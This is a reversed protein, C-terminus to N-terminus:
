GGKRRVVVREDVKLMDSVSFAGGGATSFGREVASASIVFYLTQEIREIEDKRKSHWSSVLEKGRREEDLNNPPM